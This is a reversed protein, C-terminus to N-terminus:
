RRGEGQEGAIEGSATAADEDGVGDEQAQHQSQNQNQNGMVGEFQSWLAEVSAFENGIEIIGELGRNLANIQTLVGELADGIQEVLQARRHQFETPQVADPNASTSAASSARAHTTSM